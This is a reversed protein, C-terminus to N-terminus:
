YKAAGRRGPFVSRLKHRLREMRKQCAWITIGLERAVEPYGAQDGILRKLLMRESPTLVQEVTQLLCSLGEGHIAEFPDAPDAPEPFLGSDLSIVHRTSRIYRRKRDHIKHRLTIYLWGGPNRHMMLTDMHRAAECFVDQVADQAQTHDPLAARAHCLLPSYYQRYLAELRHMQEALM